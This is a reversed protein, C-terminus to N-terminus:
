RVWGRRLHVRWRLQERVAVARECCACLYRAGDTSVSDELMAFAGDAINDSAERIMRGCVTGNPCIIEEDKSATVM